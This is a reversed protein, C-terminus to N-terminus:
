RTYWRRPLDAPLPFRPQMALTNLTQDFDCLITDDEAWPLIPVVPIFGLSVDGVRYDLGEKMRLGNRHVALNLVTDSPGPPTLIYTGDAQRSLSINVYHQSLRNLVLPRIRIRSCVASQSTWTFAVNIIGTSSVVFERTTPELGHAAFLDFKDLAPQDNIKVSFLRKGITTVTGTERFFLEVVYLGKAAPVNCNFIGYRLTIDGTADPTVVSAAKGGVCFPDLPASGLDLDVIQASLNICLTTVVLLIKM